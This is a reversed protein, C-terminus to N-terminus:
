ERQGPVLEYVGVSESQILVVGATFNEHKSVTM